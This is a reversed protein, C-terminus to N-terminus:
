YFDFEASVRQSIKGTLIDLAYYFNRNENGSPIVYVRHVVLIYGICVCATYLTSLLSDM